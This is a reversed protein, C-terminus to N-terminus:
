SRNFLSQFFVYGFGLFLLIHFPLLGLELKNEHITFATIIGIAFYLIFCGEVM